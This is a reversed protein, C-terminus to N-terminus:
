EQIRSLRAPGTEKMVRLFLFLSAREPFLRIGTSGACARGHLIEHIIVCRGGSRSNDRVFYPFVSEPLSESLCAIESVDIHRKEKGAREVGFVKRGHESLNAPRGAARKEDAAGALGDNSFVQFQFVHWRERQEGERKGVGRQLRYTEGLGQKVLALSREAPALAQAHPQVVHVGPQEEGIGEM